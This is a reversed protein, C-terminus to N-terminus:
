SNKWHSNKDVKEAGFTIADAYSAGGRFIATNTGEKYLELDKEKISAHILAKKIFGACNRKLRIRALPTYLRVTPM